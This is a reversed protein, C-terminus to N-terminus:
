NNNKEIRMLEAQICIDSVTDIKQPKWAKFKTLYVCAIPLEKEENIFKDVSINEFEEEDDSEELADLNINEKINRFLSNMWVSTKIDPIIATSYLVLEGNHDRCYLDYIDDSIQAKMIFCKKYELLHHVMENVFASKRNFYRHQVCYLAYPLSKIKEMLKQTTTEIIPLGFIIESKTYAIQKINERVLEVIVNLKDCTSINNLAKNKFYFIDEINFFQAGNCFFKTGYIVTGKQICLDGSFCCRQISINSIRKRFKDLELLFCVNQQKYTRFWAFHKKGKPITLVVSSQFVKKHSRKEYSLELSPFNQLVYQSERFNLKM